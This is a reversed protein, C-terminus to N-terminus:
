SVRHIFEDDTTQQHPALDEPSVGLRMATQDVVAPRPRGEVWVDPKLPLEPTRAGAAEHVVDAQRRLADFSWSRPDPGGSDFGVIDAERAAFRLLRPRTAGIM